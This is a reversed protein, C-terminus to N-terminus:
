RIRRDEAPNAETVDHRRNLELRDLTQVIGSPWRIEARDISTAAGLGFHLTKSSQALYGGAADVQRVLKRGGVTLTVFAGIADRNSKTGRLRLELWSRPKWRNMYVYPSGNFNSVVLDLRGDGDLDATAVSRSSKAARRGAITEDLYVGGRPIAVGAEAARNTFRGAGGNMLLVSPWFAYPFGMGSALFADM